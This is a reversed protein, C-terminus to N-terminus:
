FPGASRSNSMPARITDCIRGENRGPSVVARVETIIGGHQTHHETRWTPTQSKAPLAQIHGDTHEGPLALVHPEAGAGQTTPIPLTAQTTSGPRHSWSKM